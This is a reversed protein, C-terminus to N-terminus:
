RGGVVRPSRKGGQRGARITRTLSVMELAAVAADAGKNGHKGGARDVAQELTETTLVGLVTPIRSELAVRAVGSGAGGAVVDFHPTEGRVVVGLCVIMDVGGATAVEQACFPIEFAGPVWYVSIDDDGVGHRVLADVAGALLREAVVDNFRGVVIAARMGTGDLRGAHTHM